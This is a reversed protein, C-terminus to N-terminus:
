ESRRWLTSSPQASWRWPSGRGTMCPWCSTSSTPNGSTPPLSSRLIHERWAWAVAPPFSSSFWRFPRPLLPGMGGAVGACVALAGPSHFDFVALGKWGTWHGDRSLHFRGWGTGRPSFPCLLHQSLPVGMQGRKETGSKKRPGEMKSRWTWFLSWDM